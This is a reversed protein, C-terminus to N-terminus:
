NILELEYIVEESSKNYDIILSSSIIQSEKKLTDLFKTFDSDYQFIYVLIKYRGLINIVQPNFSNTENLSNTKVFAFFIKHNFNKAVLIQEEIINKLVSSINFINNYRDEFPAVSLTYLSTAFYSSLVKYLSLRWDYEDLTDVGGIVFFGLIKDYIKLPIFLATNMENVDYLSFYKNVIDSNNTFLDIYKKNAVINFIDSTEDFFLKKYTDERFGYGDFVKYVNDKKNILLMKKIGLGYELTSFTLFIIEDLKRSTKLVEGIEHIAELQKFRKRLNDHLFANELANCGLSIIPILIEIDKDINELGIKKLVLYGTITKAKLEFIYFDKNTLIQNNNIKDKIFLIDDDSFDKNLFVSLGNKKILFCAASARTYGIFTLLLLNVLEKPNLTNYIEKSIEFLNKIDYEKKLLSTELNILSDKIGDKKKSFDNQLDSVKEVKYDGKKISERIIKAKALLSNERFFKARDRLGFFM